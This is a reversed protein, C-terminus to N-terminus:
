AVAVSGFRDRSTQLVWKKRREKVMKRPCAKSVATFIAVVYLTFGIAPTVTTSTLAADVMATGQVDARPRPLGRYAAQGIMDVKPCPFLIIM